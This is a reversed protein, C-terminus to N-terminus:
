GRQYEAKQKYTLATLCDCKRLLGKFLNDIKLAQEEWQIKEQNAAAVKPDTTALAKCADVTPKPTVQSHNLFARAYAQEATEERRALSARVAAQVEGYSAILQGMRCLERDLDQDDIQFDEEVHLERPSLQWRYETPPALPDSGGMVGVLEEVYFTVTRGM